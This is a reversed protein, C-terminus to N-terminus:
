TLTLRIKGGPTEIECTKSTSNRIAKGIPSDISIKGITPDAEESSVLTISKPASSNISVHLTSGLSYKSKAAEGKQYLKTRVLLQRLENKRKTAEQLDNNATIWPNNEPLDGDDYADKLRKRIEPLLTMEIYELECKIELIKEDSLFLPQLIVSRRKM